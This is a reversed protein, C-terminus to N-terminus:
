KDLLDLVDEEKIELMRYLRSHCLFGVLIFIASLVYIKIGITVGALILCIILMMDYAM